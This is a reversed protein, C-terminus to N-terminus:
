VCAAPWFVVTLREGFASLVLKMNTWFLHLFLPFRGTIYWNAYSECGTRMPLLRSSWPLCFYPTSLDNPAVPKGYNEVEVWFSSFPPLSSTHDLNPQCHLKPLHLLAVGGGGWTDVWTPDTTQFSSSIYPLSYPGILSKLGWLPYPSPMNRANVPVQSAGWRLRIMQYATPNRLLTGSV